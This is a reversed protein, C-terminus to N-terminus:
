GRSCAAKCPAQRAHLPRRLTEKPPRIVRRRVDPPRPAKANRRKPRIDLHLEMHAAPVCALKRKARSDPRVHHHVGRSPSAPTAITFLQRPAPRMAVCCALWPVQTFEDPGNTGASKCRSIAVIVMQPVIAQRAERSVAGRHQRKAHQSTPRTRESRVGLVEPVSAVSRQASSTREDNSQVGRPPSARVMPM